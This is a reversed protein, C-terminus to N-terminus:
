LERDLVPLDALHINLTESKVGSMIVGNRKAHNNDICSYIGLLKTYFYQTFRSEAALAALEWLWVGM